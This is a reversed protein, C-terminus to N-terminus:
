EGGIVVFTARYTGAAVAAFASTSVSGRSWLWAFTVAVTGNTDVNVVEGLLVARPRADSKFSLTAIPGAFEREVYRISPVRAITDRLERWAETMRAWLSPASETSDWRRDRINM